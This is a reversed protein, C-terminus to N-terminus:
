ALEANPRGPSARSGKRGFLTERSVDRHEDGLAKAVVWWDVNDLAASILDRYLGSDALVVYSDGTIGDRLREALLATLAQDHSWRQVAYSRQPQEVAERVVQRWYEQSVSDGQCLWRVVLRTERTEETM